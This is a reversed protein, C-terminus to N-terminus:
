DEEQMKIYLFLFLFSYIKCNKRNNNLPDLVEQPFLQYFFSCQTIFIPASVYTFLTQFSPHKRGRKLGREAQERERLSCLVNNDTGVYRIKHSIWVPRVEDLTAPTSSAVGENRRRSVTARLVGHVVSQEM